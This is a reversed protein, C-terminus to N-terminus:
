QYKEAFSEVTEKDLREEDEKTAYRDRAIPFGCHSCRTIVMLQYRDDDAVKQVKEVPQGIHRLICDRSKPLAKLMIQEAQM